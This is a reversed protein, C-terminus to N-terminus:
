LHQPSPKSSRNRTVGYAEKGFVIMMIVGLLTAGAVFEMGLTEERQSYTFYVFVQLAVYASFTLCALLAAYALRRSLFRRILYAVLLCIAVTGGVTLFAAPFTRVATSNIVFLTVDSKPEQNALLSADIIALIVLLALYFM